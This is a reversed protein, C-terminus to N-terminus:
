RKFYWRVPVSDGPLRETMSDGVTFAARWGSPLPYYFAWGPEEVLDGESLSAIEKLSMGMTAGERSQFSQDETMIFVIENRDNVVVQFLVNELIVSYAQTITGASIVINSLEARELLEYELRNGIDLAIEEKGCCSFIPFPILIWSIWSRYGSNMRM